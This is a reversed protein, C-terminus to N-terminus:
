AAREPAVFEVGEEFSRLVMDVRTEIIAQKADQGESLLRISVFLANPLRARWLDVTSQWQPLLEELPYTIFVTAVLDDRAGEPREPPEETSVSRADIAMERLALIFLENLLEDRETPLGICLVISRAPVDLSGQWKGLQKQRM